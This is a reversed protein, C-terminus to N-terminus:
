WFTSGAAVNGPYCGLNFSDTGLGHMVVIFNQVKTVISALVGGLPAM